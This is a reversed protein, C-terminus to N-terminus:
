ASDELGSCVSLSTEQAEKSVPDILFCLQQEQEVAVLVAAAAVGQGVQLLQHSPEEGAV